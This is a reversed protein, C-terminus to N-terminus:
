DDAPTLHTYSVASVRLEPQEGLVIEDDQSDIVVCPIQHKGLAAALALGVCGGGVIIIDTSIM